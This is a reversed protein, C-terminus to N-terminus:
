IKNYVKKYYEDAMRGSEFQAMVDNYGNKVIEFWKEPTDYYTPLVKKEFTEMINNLDLHDQEHVPLNIDVEPVVFCNKGNKAFEPIWGDFTSFNVSGNMAASMGSTGSAERTVRPNNLWVDSGKKLLASLKLEYGVLVAVNKYKKSLHVLKNFISVAGYDMPYPKGAWIMQIPMKTDSILELARESTAILDPRKYAAFRRGWVITLVNPDFLQGTQDAVVDFLQQKLEKKRKIYKDYNDKKIQRALEADEWYKGNQANTIAIIKSINEYGRWMRNAVAGHIKSVGNSLGAFRLAVLTHNFTDDWTETIERVTNLPVGAFFSMKELLRIDTKENGAEEPTHTTFAIQKKLKKVDKHKNYLYFSAALAHAENFHYIEPEFGLIDMLKAGGVGLLINQAIRAAKDSDYLRHSTTQALYDNEPIDTSLFFMPATGFTEPALYLAKVWVPHNNINIDFKIDTEQLFSYIKEQFLVNMSQDPNRIQDYYGYKWLIGIGVLNQKLEYASRMHSGALFGLGGSYIKLAQDLAFEMSFYATKKKYEPNIKYPVSFSEFNEM